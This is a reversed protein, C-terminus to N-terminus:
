GNNIWDDLLSDQVNKDSRHYFLLSIFDKCEESLGQDKLKKDKRFIVEKKSDAAKMSLESILDESIENIYKEDLYFLTMLIEKAVDNSLEEVM